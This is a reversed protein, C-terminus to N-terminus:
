FKRFQPVLIEPVWVLIQKGGLEVVNTPKGLNNIVQERTM